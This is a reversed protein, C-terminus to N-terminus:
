PAVPERPGVEAVTWPSEGAANFASVAVCPPPYEGTLPLDYSTAGPPATAAPTVGNRNGDVCWDPLTCTSDQPGCAGGTRGVYIHYGAVTGGSRSWNLLLCIDSNPHVALCPDSGETLIGAGFDLATLNGPASPPSLKPAQSVVPPRTIVPARSVIPAEYSVRQSAGGGSTRFGIYLWSAGKGFRTSGWAQVFSDETMRLQRGAKAPDRAGTANWPDNIVYTSGGDQMGVLLVAHAGDFDENFPRQVKGTSDNLLKADPIYLVLPRGQGLETEVLSKWQDATTPQYTKDAAFLQDTSAEVVGFTEHLGQKVPVTSAARMFRRVSGYDAKRQVLAGAPHAVISTGDAGRSVYLDSTGDLGRSFGAGVTEHPSVTHIVMRESQVTITEGAAFRSGDAVSIYSGVGTGISLTTSQLASMAMTLSAPLCDYAGNDYNSDTQTFQQGLQDVQLLVDRPAASAHSTPVAVIVAVVAAIALVRTARSRCSASRGTV